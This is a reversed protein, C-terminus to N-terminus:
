KERRALWVWFGIAAIFFVAAGAGGLPTNFIGVIGM